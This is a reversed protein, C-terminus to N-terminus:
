QRNLPLLSVTPFGHYWAQPRCKLAAEFPPRFVTLPRWLFFSVLATGWMHRIRARLDPTLVQRWLSADEMLGHLLARWNPGAVGAADLASLVRELGSGLDLPGLFSAL